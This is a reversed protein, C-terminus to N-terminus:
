DEKRRRSGALFAGASVTLLAIGALAYLATGPGGTSPLEYGSTNVVTIVVGSDVRCVASPNGTVFDPVAQVTYGVTMLIDGGLPHYGDPTGTERIRYTGPAISGSWILGAGDSTLNKLEAGSSDKAVTRGDEEYVTFVAGALPAEGSGGNLNSVGAKKLTVTKDEPQQRNIIQVTGGETVGENQGKYSVLYGSAPATEVVYFRYDEGDETKVDSLTIEARWPDGLTRDSLIKELYNGKDPDDLTQRLADFEEKTMVDTGNGSADDQVSFLGAARASSLRESAAQQQAQNSPLLIWRSNGITGDPKEVNNSDNDVFVYYTGSATRYLTGQSISNAKANGNWYSADIINGNLRVTENNCNGGPGPGAELQIYSKGTIRRYVVYYEGDKYQFLGTPEIDPATKNKDTVGAPTAPWQYNTVIIGTNRYTKQLVPIDETRTTGCGNQCTYVIKGVATETPETIRTGEDWSHGTRVLVRTEEEGCVTCTLTVSGDTECGPEVRATEELTHGRADLVETFTYPTGNEGADCEPNQCTWTRSGDATCTPETEASVALDHGKLPIPRSRVEGCRSCTSTEEGEEKETSDTKITWEGWDHEHHFRYVDYTISEEPATDLRNGDKDQWIKEVIIKGSRQVNTIRVTGGAEDQRADARAYSEGDAADTGEYAYVARFKSTDPDEQEGVVYRILEYRYTRTGSDYVLRKPDLSDFVGEWDPGRLVLQRGEVPVRTGNGDLTYLLITVHDPLDQGTLPNGEADTWSKKVTLKTKATQIVPKEYHSINQQGDYTYTVKTQGNDNSWFGPHESSTDNTGYDTDEDGTVGGYGNKAYEEYARTTPVINFSLTYTDGDAYDLNNELKLRVTQGSVILEGVRNGESDTVARVRDGTEQQVTEAGVTLTTEVGDATKKTVKFDPQNAYLIAYESMVDQIEVGSVRKISIAKKLAELLQAGNTATEYGNNQMQELLSRYKYRVGVASVYGADIDRDMNEAFGIANVFVNRDQYADKFSRIAEETKPIVVQLNSLVEKGRIDYSNSGGRDDAGYVTPLGDSLFVVYTPCDARDAPLSDIQQRVLTLAYDYNTWRSNDIGGKWWMYRDLNDDSTFAEVYPQDM